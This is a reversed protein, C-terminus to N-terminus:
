KAALKQLRAFIWALPPFALITVQIQALLPLPPLLKLDHASGLIWIAFFAMIAVIAFGAWTVAFPRNVFFRRQNHLAAVLSLLLIPTLGAPALSLLDEFLGLLFVAWYPTLSPRHVAFFFTFILGIHPIFMDLGQAQFPLRLVIILLMAAAYPLVRRFARAAHLPQAMSAM